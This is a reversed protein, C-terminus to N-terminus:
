ADHASVEYRSRGNAKARYMAVDARRLLDEPTDDAGASRAIGISASVRLQQGDTDLDITLARGVRDATAMVDADSAAGECLVVFEDGGMRGATDSERMASALRAAVDVLLADGAAHGFSDNVEKFHDLDLYLVGVTTGSRQARGLALGLQETLLARNPLGTLPDHLANYTLEAEARRRTTVDNVMCIAYDPRGAQDTIVSYSADVWVDHGGSHQFRHQVLEALDTGDTMAAFTVEVLEVDEPHALDQVRAALLESEDRGLMASMAHNVRLLDGTEGPRLSM